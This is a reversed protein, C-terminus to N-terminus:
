PTPSSRRGATPGKSTEIGWHSRTPRYGKSPRRACGRAQGGRLPQRHLEQGDPGQHRAHVERLLPLRSLPRLEGQRLPDGPRDRRPHRLGQPQPLAPRDERRPDHPLLAVRKLFALMEGFGTRGARKATEVDVFERVVHLEHGRRLRAPAEAALPISYGEKEQEESSVRAYLVAQAM